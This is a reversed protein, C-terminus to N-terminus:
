RKRGRRKSKKVETLSYLDEWAIFYDKGFRKSSFRILLEELRDDSTLKRFEYPNGLKIKDKVKLKGINKGHEDYVNIAEDVLCDKGSFNEAISIQRKKEVRKM